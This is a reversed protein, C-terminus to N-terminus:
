ASETVSINFKNRLKAKLSKIVTRKDKM